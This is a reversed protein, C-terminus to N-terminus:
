VTDCRQLGHESLVGDRCYLDLIFWMNAAGRRGMNMGYMMEERALTNDSYYKVQGNLSISTLIGGTSDM